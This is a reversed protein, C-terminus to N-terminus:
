LGQLSDKVITTINNNVSQTAALDFDDTPGQIREVNLHGTKTTSAVDQRIVAIRYFAENFLFDGSSGLEPNSAAIPAPGTVTGSAPASEPQMDAANDTTFRQNYIVTNNGLTGPIINAVPLTTELFKSRYAENFRILSFPPTQTADAKAKYYLPGTQSGKVNDNDVNNAGRNRSAFREIDYRGNRKDHLTCIMDIQGAGTLLPLVIKELDGRQLTRYRVPLIISQIYGNVGGQSVTQGHLSMASAAAPSSRQINYDEHVTKDLGHPDFAILLIKKDAM